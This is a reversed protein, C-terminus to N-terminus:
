LAGSNSLAALWSTSALPDGHAPARDSRSSRPARASDSAARRNFIPLSVQHRDGFKRMYDEYKNALYEMPVFIM